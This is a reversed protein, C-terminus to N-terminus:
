YGMLTFDSFVIRCIVVVTFVSYLVLTTAALSRQILPLAEQLSPVPRFPM